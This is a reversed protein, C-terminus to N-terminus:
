QIPRRLSSKLSSNPRNNQPKPSPAINTALTVLQQLKNNMTHQQATLDILMHKMEDLEVLVRTYEAM